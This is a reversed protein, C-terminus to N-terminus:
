RTAETSSTCQFSFSPSIKWFVAAECEVGSSGTAKDGATHASRREGGSGATIVGTMTQAPACWPRQQGANHKAHLSMAEVGRAKVVGSVRLSQATLSESESSYAFM